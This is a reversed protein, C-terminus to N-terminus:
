EILIKTYIKNIKFLSLNGLVLDPFTKLPVILLMKFLFFYLNGAVISSSDVKSIMYFATSLFPILICFM